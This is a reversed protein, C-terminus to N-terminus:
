GYSRGESYHSGNKGHHAAERPFFSIEKRVVTFFVVRLFFLFHVGVYKGM